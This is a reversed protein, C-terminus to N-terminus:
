RYETTELLHEAAAAELEEDLDLETGGFKEAFARLEESRKQKASVDRKEVLFDIFHEVEI